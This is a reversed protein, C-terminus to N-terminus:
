LFKVYGLLYIYIYKIIYLNRESTSNCTYVCSQLVGDVVCHFVDTDPSTLSSSQPSMQPPAHSDCSLLTSIIKM